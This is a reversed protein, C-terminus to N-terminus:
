GGDQAAPRLDEIQGEPSSGGAQGGIPGSVEARDPDEPSRGAGQGDPGPWSGDGDGDHDDPSWGEEQGDDPWGDWAGGDGAQGGEPWGGSDLGAYV